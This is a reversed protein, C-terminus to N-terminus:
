KLLYIAFDGPHYDHRLVVREALRGCLKLTEAPDAYYEGAEKEESWSSLTTFAVGKRALSFMKGILLAMMEPAKEGLLYFTGQSLVYDAADQTEDLDLVNLNEFSLTPLRKSAASVMGASIDIGRYRVGNFEEILYEGLHGLGSGVELVTSGSLDGVEGLVSYRALLTSMGSADVARPGHGYRDLLGDYYKAIRQFQDDM